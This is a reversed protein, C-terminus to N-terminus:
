MMTWVGTSELSAFPIDQRVLKHFMPLAYGRGVTMLGLKLRPAVEDRKKVLYDFLDFYGINSDVVQDVQVNYISALATLSPLSLKRLEYFEPRRQEFFPRYKESRLDPYLEAFNLFVGEAEPYTEALAKLRNVQIERNVPDLPHLFTGFLYHFPQDGVKESHR